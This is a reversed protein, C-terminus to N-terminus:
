QVIGDFYEKPDPKPDPKPEPCTKTKSLAVFTNEREGTLCEPRLVWEGEGVDSLICHNVPPCTYPTKEFAHVLLGTAVFFLCLNLFLVSYKARNDMYDQPLSINVLVICITLILLAFASLYLGSHHYERAKVLLLIMVVLLYVAVLGVAGLTLYKKTPSIETPVLPDSDM